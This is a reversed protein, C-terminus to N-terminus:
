GVGTRGSGSSQQHQHTSITSNIIHQHSSITHNLHTSLHPTHSPQHNPHKLHISHPNIHHEEAVGRAGKAALKDALENGAVGTHSRVHAFRVKGAARKAELRIVGQRLRHVLANNKGRKPKWKGTAMNIAYTSDVCFETAGSHETHEEKEVAKILATLEGTNNSHRQAGVFHADRANTVVPGCAKYLLEPTESTPTAASHATDTAAEAASHATDTTAEAAHHYM